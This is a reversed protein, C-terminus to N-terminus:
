RGLIGTDWLLVVVTLLSLSMLTSIPQPVAAGYPLWRGGERVDRKPTNATLGTLLAAGLAPLAVEAGTFYHSTVTAGPM